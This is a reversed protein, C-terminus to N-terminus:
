RGRVEGDADVFVKTVRSGNILLRVEVGPESGRFARNTSLVRGGTTRRAIRAAREVSISAPEVPALNNQPALTSPQLQPELWAPAASALGPTILAVCAFVTLWSRWQRLALTPGPAAPRAADNRPRCQSAM